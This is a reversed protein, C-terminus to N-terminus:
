KRSGLTIAKLNGTIQGLGQFFKCLLQFLEGKGVNTYLIWFIVM